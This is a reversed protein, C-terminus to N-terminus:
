ADITGIGRVQGTTGDCEHAAFVVVYNEAVECAYVGQNTTLRGNDQYGPRWGDSFRARYYALAIEDAKTFERADFAANIKNIATQRIM